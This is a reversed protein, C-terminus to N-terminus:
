RFNPFHGKIERATAVGCWTKNENYMFLFGTGHGSQTEIKVLYPTIKTVIQYWNM